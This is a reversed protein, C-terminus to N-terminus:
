ERSHYFIGQSSTPAVGRHVTASCRYGGSVDRRNGSPDFFYITQRRSAHRDASVVARRGHWSEGGQPHRGLRADRVRLPPDKNEPGRCPSTTTRSGISGRGITHADDDLTTARTPAWCGIVGPLVRSEAVNTSWLLAHDLPLVSAVLLHRPLTPTKSGVELGVGDTSYFEM